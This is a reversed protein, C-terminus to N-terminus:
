FARHLKHDDEKKWKQGDHKWLLPVCGSLTSPPFQIPQAAKSKIYSRQKFILSLTTFRGADLYKIVPWVSQDYKECVRFVFQTVSKNPPIKHFKFCTCTVFSCHFCKEASVPWVICKDTPVSERSSSTVPAVLPEAADCLEKFTLRSMRFNQIWKWM